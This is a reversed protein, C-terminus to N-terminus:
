AKCAQEGKGPQTLTIHGTDGTLKWGGDAVLPDGAKDAKLTTPSGDKKTKVIAQKDGQFFTVYVLSNDKCRFTKDAKIAPPLEVAGKNALEAAMPDPNTDVVEPKSPQSNCASLAILAAAAPLLLPSKM